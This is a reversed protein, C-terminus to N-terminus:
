TELQSYEIFFEEFQDIILVAPLVGNIGSAQRELSKIEGKLRSLKSDSVISRSENSLQRWNSIYLVEFEAEKLLSQVASRLLSTKGSGVAGCVVGFSFNPDTIQTFVIRAERQRHEGPLIDGELYPYLGRFATRKNKREEWLVLQEKRRKRILRRHQIKSYFYASIGVLSLALLLGILRGPGEAKIVTALIATIAGAITAILEWWETILERLKHTAAIDRLSSDSEKKM